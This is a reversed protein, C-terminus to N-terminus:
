IRNRGTEARVVHGEWRDARLWSVGTATGETGFPSLGKEWEFRVKLVNKKSQGSILFRLVKGSDDDFRVTLIGIAKREPRASVAL